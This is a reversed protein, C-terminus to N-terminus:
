CVFEALTLIDIVLKIGGDDGDMLRGGIAEVDGGLDLQSYTMYLLMVMM